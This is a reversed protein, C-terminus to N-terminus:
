QAGVLLKRTENPEQSTAVLDGAESSIPKPTSQVASEDTKSLDRCASLSFIAKQFHEVEAEYVQAGDSNLIGGKANWGLQRYMSSKDFVKSLTGIEGKTNFNFSFIVRSTFRRLPSAPPILAKGKGAQTHTGSMELAVTIAKDSFTIDSKDFAFELDPMYEKLKRAFMVYM